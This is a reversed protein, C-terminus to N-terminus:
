RDRAAAYKAHARGLSHVRCVLRDRRHGHAGLHLRRPLRALARAGDCPLFAVDRMFPSKRLDFGGALYALHGLTFVAVVLGSGLLGGVGFGSHTHAGAFSAVCSFLDPAGNAFALLTAGAVSPDLRTMAAISTVAPVMYRDTTDGVIYFLLCLLTSLLAVSVLPLADMDCYHLSLYDITSVRTAHACACRLEDPVAIFGPRGCNDPFVFLGSVVAPALLLLLVRWTTAAM